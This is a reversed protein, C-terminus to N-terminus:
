VCVCVCVSSCVINTSCLPCLTNGMVVLGQAMVRLKFGIRFLM